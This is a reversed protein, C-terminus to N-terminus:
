PFQYCLQVLESGLEPTEHDRQGAVMAVFLEAEAVFERAPADFAGATAANERDRQQFTVVVVYRRRRFFLGGERRDLRRPRARRVIIVLLVVIVAVQPRRLTGLAHALGIRKEKDDAQDQPEAPEDGHRRADDEGLLRVIPNAVLLIGELMPLVLEFL